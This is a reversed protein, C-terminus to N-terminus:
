WRYGEVKKFSNLMLFNSLQEKNKILWRSPGWLALKLNEMFELKKHADLFIDCWGDNSYDTNQVWRKLKLLWRTWNIWNKPAMSSKGSGFQFNTQVGVGTIERGNEKKQDKEFLNYKVDCRREQNM